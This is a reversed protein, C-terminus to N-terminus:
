DEDSSEFSTANRFASARTLSQNAERVISELQQKQSSSLNKVRELAQSVDAEVREFYVSTNSMQEILTSPDISQDSKLVGHVQDRRTVQTKISHVPSTRYGDVLTHM